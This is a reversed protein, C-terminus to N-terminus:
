KRRKYNVVNECMAVFEEISYKNKLRNIDKDVWQVNDITYGKSSDIRDLSANGTNRKRGTRWMILPQGTLACKRDQNLFINWIDEITISLEINRKKANSNIVYWYKGSIEEYGSWKPNKEGKPHYICGCSAVSNHTIRTTALKIEGGCECKCLWLKQKHKDIEDLEEIVTLKGTKSGVLSSGYKKSYRESM